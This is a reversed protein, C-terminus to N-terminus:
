QDNQLRSQRGIGLVVMLELRSKFLDKTGKSVSIENQFHNVLVFGSGYRFQPHPSPASGPDHLIQQELRSALRLLDVNVVDWKEPASM